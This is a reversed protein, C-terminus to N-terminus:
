LHFSATLLEIIIALGIIAFLVISEISKMKEAKAKEVEAQDVYRNVNETKKNIDKRIHIFKRDAPILMKTGCYKCFCYERDDDIEIEGGCNECYLKILNSM